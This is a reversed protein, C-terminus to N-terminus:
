LQCYFTSEGGVNSTQYKISLNHLSFLYFLLFFLFLFSTENWRMRRKSSHSWFHLGITRGFMPLSTAGEGKEHTFTKKYFNASGPRKKNMKTWKENCNWYDLNFFAEITHKANSGMAVPHFVCVFGNLYPPRRSHKTSSNEKVKMEDQQRIRADEQKKTKPYIETRPKRLTVFSCCSRDCSLLKSRKSPPPLIVTRSVEQRVPKSKVLRTFSISVSCLCLLKIYAFYVPPWGYM